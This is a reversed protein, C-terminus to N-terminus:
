TTLTREELIDLRMNRACLPRQGQLAASEGGAQDLRPLDLTEDTGDRGAFLQDRM